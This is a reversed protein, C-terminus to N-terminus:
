LLWEVTAGHPHGDALHIEETLPWLKLRLEFAKRADDFEYSLWGFPKEETARTAAADIATRFRQKQDEPLYQLTITHFLVRMVGEAQPSSLREETWGAAEGKDITPPFARAVDIALANRAIRETQDPWIYAMLREAAEPEALHIPNRDVGRQSRIQVDADPPPPGKWEPALHVPSAADGVDVGGLTYRYRNLNLVLGASSGIELLEIPMPYRAAAVMLGAMIYAARAPENTQPPSDLWPELWDDHAKLARSVAAVVGTGSRYAASMAEDEGSRALAHLGGALRLALADSTPAPDGSWSLVWGGTQTDSSLNDAAAKLVEDTLASGLARCFDAQERFAERIERARDNM